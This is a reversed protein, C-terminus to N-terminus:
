EYNAEKYVYNVLIKQLKKTARSKRSLLTGLKIGTEDVLQKYSKGKIETEIFVFRSKEDLNDIAKKIYGKLESHLVSDEISSTM